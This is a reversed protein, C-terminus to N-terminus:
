RVAGKQTVSRNVPSLEGQQGGALSRRATHLQNRVAGSSLRLIAAIDDTSLDLAYYLAVVKAQAAPLSRVAAWFDVDTSGADASIPRSGSLRLLALLERGVRRHRDVALNTTVRYLWRRRHEAGDLQRWHTVLRILAEQAIDEAEVVTSGAAVAIRRCRPFEERYLAEFGPPSIM